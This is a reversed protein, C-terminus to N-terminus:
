ARGSRAYSAASRYLNAAMLGREGGARTEYFQAVGEANPRHAALGMPLPVESDGFAGQPFGHNNRVARRRNGTTQM